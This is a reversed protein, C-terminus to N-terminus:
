PQRTAPKLVLGVIVMGALGLSWMANMAAMSLGLFRFQVDDCRIIAAKEIQALIESASLGTLSGSCTEPGAWWHYEVGVQFAGIMGGIAFSAACLVLCITNGGRYLGPGMYGQIGAQAPIARGILSLAAFFIAIFYPPRQYLCLNCPLFGFGYQMTYAFALSFVAAGMILFPLYRHLIMLLIHILASMKLLWRAFLGGVKLLPFFM